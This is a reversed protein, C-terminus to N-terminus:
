GPQHTVELTVLYGNFRLDGEENEWGDARTVDRLRVSGAVPVLTRDDAVAPAYRCLASRIAVVRGTTMPCPEPLGGHHQEVHTVSDAVASGVANALWARDPEDSLAWTVEGGVSFPVGCCQMQWADVWVVYRM